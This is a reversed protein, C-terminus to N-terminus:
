CVVLRFLWSSTIIGIELYHRSVTCLWRVLQCADRFISNRFTVYAFSCWLVANRPEWSHCSELSPCSPTYTHGFFTTFAEGMVLATTWIFADSIASSSFVGDVLNTTICCLPRTKHHLVLSERHQRRVESRLKQRKQPVHAQNLSFFFM